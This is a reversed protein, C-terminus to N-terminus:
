YKYKSYNLTYINLNFNYIFKFGLIFFVKL